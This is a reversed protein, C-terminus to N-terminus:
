QRVATFEPLKEFDFENIYEVLCTCPLNHCALCNKYFLEALGKAVDIGISNAVGFTCSIFDAVEEAIKQLQEPRHHHLYAHTAESMEGIEEAWHVGADALTRGNAPYIANFMQQFEKLTAPRRSEDVTLKPRHTPKQTKCSCPCTGCYSCLYPFRQWIVEEINFHMRNVVTMSWSFADLLNLRLQERDGKRMGKLARMAFRQQQALIDSMSFNRDGPLDYIEHMLQQYDAISGDQPFSKDM